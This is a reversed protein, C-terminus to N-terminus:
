QPPILSSSLSEEDEIGTAQTLAALVNERGQFEKNKLQALAALVDEPSRRGDSWARIM